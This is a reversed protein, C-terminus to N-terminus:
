PKPEARAELADEDVQEARAELADMFRDGHAAPVDLLVDGLRAFACGSPMREAYTVADLNITCTTGNDRVFVFLRGNRRAKSETTM